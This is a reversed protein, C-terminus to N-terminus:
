DWNSQPWADPGDKASQFARAGTGAADGGEGGGVSDFPTQHLRPTTGEDLDEEADEFASTTVTGGGGSGGLSSSSLAMKALFSGVDADDLASGFGSGGGGGAGAVGTVLPMGVGGLGLHQQQPRSGGLAQHDREKTERLVGEVYEVWETNEGVLAGVSEPFEAGCKEWLKCVEDSIYTLHGMYGLRLGKPQTIIKDNTKQANLIHTTLSGDSLISTVLAEFITKVSKMKEELPTLPEGEKPPDAETGDPNLPRFNATSTFTYTNFVKAIMDYVVSHLFNHWPYSFFLDLCNPLVRIGVFKSTVAVLSDAVNPKVLKANPPTKDGKDASGTTSPTPTSIEMPQAESSEGTAADTTATASPTESDQQAPTPLPDSTEVINKTEDAAAEAVEATEFVLREFLPSSFYLYQLHLIEAFLECTKLRESGLPTNTPSAPNYLPQPRPNQLLTSFAEVHEEIVKLLDSLDTSLTKVKERTPLILGPRAAQLDLQTQFQHQLYEAQEIESCYRRILEIIINIGNALTSAVNAAGRDLMYTVLQRMVAESKLEDVLTLGSPADVGEATEDRDIHDAKQYSVAIVDLITQAATSHIELDLHPDLRGVLSPIIGQESLWLEISQQNPSDELGLIKLLLEAISSNGIHTLFLPILQPQSKIFKAMEFPLMHLLVGNVKGFYSAQLSDIPAPKEVFSWFSTLLGDTRLIAEAIAIIECSIIESALYPYKFRKAEELDDATIFKLLQTINEEKCLFEILKANHSKCEQLLDEEELIEDLTVTEKELITDIASGQQFAFRWYM